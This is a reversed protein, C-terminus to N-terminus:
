IINNRVCEYMMIAGAQPLSLSEGGGAGPIKWKEKTLALMEEPLGHSESGLLLATDIGCPHPAQGDRVDSGIIAFRGAIAPLFREFDVGEIIRMHFIGGMSARVVKPNFAECSNTSLVMAGFGFWHATRILAGTNNPNAAQYLLLLPGADLSAAVAEASMGGALSGDPHSAVAMIGEPSKDQSLAGWERRTLEFLPVEEADQEWQTIEPCILIARVPWGSKLLEGVVKEGEALFAGEERRYKELTLKKWGKLQMSTPRKM